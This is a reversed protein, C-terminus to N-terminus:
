TGHKIGRARVHLAHEGLNWVRFSFELGDLGVQEVQFKPALKWFWGKYIQKSLQILKARTQHAICPTWKQIASAEMEHAVGNPAFEHTM